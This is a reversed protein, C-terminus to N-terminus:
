DLLGMLALIAEQRLTLLQRLQEQASALEAQKKKRTEYYKALAAKIQDPAANSDVASQLADAEQSPEGLSPFARRGGAQGGGGGGVMGRFAGVGSSATEMKLQVVKMLRAEIVGWEAVDTVALQERIADILRQQIMQRMQEPDVNAWPSPQQAPAKGCGLMLALAAVAPTLPSHRFRM